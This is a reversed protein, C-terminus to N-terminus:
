LAQEAKAHPIHMLLAVLWVCPSKLGAYHADAMVETHRITPGPRAARDPKAAKQQLQPAADAVEQSSRQRKQLRGSTRRGSMPEAPGSPITQQAAQILLLRARGYGEVLDKLPHCPRLDRTDCPHRCQPCKARGQREQYELNSRICASCDAPSCWLCM